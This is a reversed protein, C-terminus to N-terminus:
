LNYEDLPEPIIVKLENNKVKDKIEELDNRRFDRQLHTLALYKINNGEAMKVLDMICAHGIIKKDYLYAEHILLDCNRYLKETNENFMGDGSYSISKEKNKTRIALNNGSHVTDAFSLELDNFKIRTNKDVEIFKIKFKFNKSFGPYAFEMVREFNDKFGNQCIITIPKKREEEWMRMFLATLGFYHDAHQHSIYVADLLNQDPNYKWLQKPIDYGCDLLLKTKETIILHSNNPLNEDFAEGVGLFVIKMTVSYLLIDNSNFIIDKDYKQKGVTCVISM